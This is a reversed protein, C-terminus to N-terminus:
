SLEDLIKDLKNQSFYKQEDRIRMKNGVKNARPVKGFKERFRILLARELKRWTKAGKIKGCTVIYLELHKIGYEYLLYEGKWVASSAIRRAGKKTTGIYAIKSRGLPYSLNKNARVVYVLKMDRFAARNIVFCPQKQIKVTLKRSM